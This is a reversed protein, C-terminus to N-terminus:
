NKRIKELLINLKNNKSKLKPFAKIFRIEEYTFSIKIKNIKVFIEDKLKSVVFSTDKKFDLDNFPIANTFQKLPELNTKLKNTIDIINTDLKVSFANIAFMLKEKIKIVLSVTYVFDIIFLVLLVSLFPILITKNLSNYFNLVIPNLKFVFINGFGFVIGGYLCIRGNLNFPFNSYNWLSLNLLKELLYSSTYELVLSSCFTYIFIFLINETKHFLILNLTAGIGYIPLFPGQLFGRNIFKRDSYYSCIFSEWIWGILSYLFFAFLLIEKYQHIYFILETIYTM